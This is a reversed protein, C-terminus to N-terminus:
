GSTGAQGAGGHVGSGARAGEQELDYVVLRSNSLVCPYRSRLYERLGSYYDLWWFAPWGFVVFGAGMGRLRELEKIATRDDEPVGWYSGDRELFPMARRDVAFEAGWEDEDVLIFTQGPDVLTEIESRAIEIREDWSLNLEPVLEHTLASRRMSLHFLRDALWQRFSADAARDSKFLHAAADSREAMTALPGTGRSSGFRRQSDRGAHVRVRGLLSPILVVDYSVMMRYYLNIDISHNSHPTDFPGVEDLVASRMLVTSAHIVWNAGNVIAYLYDTGAILGDRPYEGPLAVPESNLDIGGALTFSFGATPNRELAAVSESIFDPLLEDDDQFIVLYPSRNLEIARNWNRFLGINTANRVYKLRRDRFSKVVAETNDTSANDLVLVEFDQYTQDLASRLSARLLEARNYTPIAITVQPATHKTTAM